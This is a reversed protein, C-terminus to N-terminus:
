APSGPCRRVRCTAGPHADADAGAGCWERRRVDVLVERDPVAGRASRPHDDRALLAGGPRARASSRRRDAAHGAHGRRAAGRLHPVRRSTEEAAMDKFHVNFTYPALKEVTEIPDDLVTLNNGTDLSVGLYESSYQECCRSRSTSAGTRTTRSASRCGTGSSSRCRPPSRSTSARRGGAELRRAFRVDRLAPGLLCVARLSTAGAEKAVKVAHEFVAPDERPLFTQIELYMGLEEKLRRTARAWDMDITTMGGHAGAAGVRAALEMLRDAALLRQPTAFRISQFSDSTLGM